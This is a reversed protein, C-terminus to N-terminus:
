LYRSFPKSSSILFTLQSAPHLPQISQQPFTEAYKQLHPSVTATCSCGRREEAARSQIQYFLQSQGLLQYVAAPKILPKFTLFRQHCPKSLLNNGQRGTLHQFTGAALCLEGTRTARVRLVSTPIERQQRYSSSNRFPNVSDSRLLSAMSVPMRSALPLM